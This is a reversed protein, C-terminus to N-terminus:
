IFSEDGPPHLVSDESLVATSIPLGFHRWWSVYSWRAHAPVPRARHSPLYSWHISNDSGPRRPRLGQSVGRSDTRRGVCCGGPHRRCRSWSGDSGAPQRIRGHTFSLAALRVPLTCGRACCGERRSLRPEWSSKRRIRPGRGTRIRLLSSRYGRLTGGPLRLDSIRQLNAIRQAHASKSERGKAATILQHSTRPTGNAASATTTPLFRSTPRTARTRSGHFRGRFGTVSSLSAFYDSLRTRLALRRFSRLRRRRAGGPVRSGLGHLGRQVTSSRRVHCCGGAVVLRIPTGVACCCRVTM